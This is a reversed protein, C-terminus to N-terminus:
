DSVSDVTGDEKIKPNLELVREITLGSMEALFEPSCYTFDVEPDIQSIFDEWSDFEGIYWDSDGCEECYLEDYDKEYDTTYIVGSLHSEYFYM